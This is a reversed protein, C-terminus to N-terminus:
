ASRAAEAASAMRELYDPDTSTPIQARLKVAESTSPQLSLPLWKASDAKIEEYVRPHQLKLGMPPEGHMSYRGREETTRLWGEASIWRRHDLGLFKFDARTVFGQAEALIVLKIARIKWETLQVPAPNGAAVDPVYEPLLHRKTPCWEHWDGNSYNHGRREDPLSPLFEPGSWGNRVRMQIVTIGIYDALPKLSGEGDPVLVARCDPGAHDAGWAGYEELSQQLVTANFKLKAEVGIQFGDSKRALLIDWGGTEAYVTWEKPVAEIFAACLDSEKEFLKPKAV